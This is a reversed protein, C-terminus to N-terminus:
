KAGANKLLTVIAKNGEEQALSLATRGSSDKTNIDAKKGLLIKVIDAADHTAAIMLATTGDEARINISAGGAILTQVLDARGNIVAKMLATEGLSDKANVNAHRTLLHSVKAPNGSEVAWMLPTEGTDADASNVNAGKQILDALEFFTGGAAARRLAEDLNAQGAGQAARAQMVLTFRRPVEASATADAILATLWFTQIVHWVIRKRM